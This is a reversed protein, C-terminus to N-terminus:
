ELKLDSLDIDLDFDDAKKEDKNKKATKENAEPKTIEDLNLDLDLDDLGFDDSAQKGPSEVKAPAEINLDVDGLDVEPETAAKPAPRAPAEKTMEDFNIDLDGLDIDLDAADAKAEVKGTSGLVDLADTVSTENQAPPKVSIDTEIEGLDLSFEEEAEAGKQATAVPEEGLDLEGLDLSIGGEKAPAASVPAAQEPEDFDLSIEEVKDEVSKHVKEESVNLDLDETEVLPLSISATEDSSEGLDSLDIADQGGLEINTGVGLFDTDSTIAEELGSTGSLSDTQSAGRIGSSEETAVATAPEDAAQQPAAEERLAAVLGLSAYQPFDIGLETKHLTLDNGCKKCANLYEFSVFNCKPCKM